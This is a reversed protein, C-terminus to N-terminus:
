LTTHGTGPEPRALSTGKRKGGTAAVAASVARVITPTTGAEELDSALGELDVKGEAIGVTSAILECIGTPDELRLM